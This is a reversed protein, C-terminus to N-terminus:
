ICTFHQCIKHVDNLNEVAVQSFAPVSCASLLSCTHIGDSLASLDLSVHSHEGITIPTFIHLQVGKTVFESYKGLSFSGGGALFMPIWLCLVQLHLCHLLECVSVPGLATLNAGNEITVAASQFSSDGSITVSAREGISM